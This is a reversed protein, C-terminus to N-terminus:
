EGASEAQLESTINLLRYEERVEVREPESDIEM